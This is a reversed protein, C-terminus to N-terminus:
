PSQHYFHNVQATFARDSASPWQARDFHPAAALTERTANVILGGSGATRRLADPAIAIYGGSLGAVGSADLVAFAVRGSNWDIVVDKIDGVPAGNADQVAMGVLDSSRAYAPLPAAVVPAPTAAMTIAPAEVYATDPSANNWYQDDRLHAQGKGRQYGAVIRGMAEDHEHATVAPLAAGAPETIIESSALQATPQPVGYYALTTAAWGPNELDMKAFDPAARFRSSDCALTLANGGPQALLLAAPTAIKREDGSTTIVAFAVRGHQLDMVVDSVRGIESGDQAVVRSGVLDTSRCVAAPAPLTAATAFPDASLALPLIVGGCVALFLSEKIKV